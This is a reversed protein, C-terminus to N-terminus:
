DAAGSPAGVWQALVRGLEDRKVPKLVFGDMGAALCRSRADADGDATLADYGVFETAPVDALGELLPFDVTFASAKKSRHRQEALATDFGERLVVTVIPQAVNNGRMVVYYDIAGGAHSWAVDNGGAGYTVQVGSPADYCIDGSGKNSPAGELRDTYM